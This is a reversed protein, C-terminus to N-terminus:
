HGARDRRAILALPIGVCIIHPLMWLVFRTLDAPPFSGPYRTGLVIGYMIAYLLLGYLTGVLWPSTQRLWAIRRYAFLFAAVMAAMIAFHVALGVLVAGLGWQKAGDGFPGAAVGSWTEIVGGGRLISVITAYLGDLTGCLLWAKIFVARM